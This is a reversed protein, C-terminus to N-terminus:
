VASAAQRLQEIQQLFVTKDRPSIMIEQHAGYTIRLRDLSLAPSSHPNKTPTIAQIDQISVKWKFPGSKILLHTSTLTYNTRLLWAPLGVGVVLLPAIVLWEVPSGEKILAFSGYLCSAIAFLM